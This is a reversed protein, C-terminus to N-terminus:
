NVSRIDGMIGGSISFTFSGVLNTAFNNPAFVKEHSFVYDFDGANIFNKTYRNEYLIDIDYGAILTKINEAQTSGIRETAVLIGIDEM